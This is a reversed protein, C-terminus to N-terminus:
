GGRRALAEARRDVVSRHAAPGRQVGDLTLRRRALLLLRAGNRRVADGASEPERYNGDRLRAPENGAPREHHEELDQRLGDDQLPLAQPQGDYSLRDRRVGHGSRLAVA